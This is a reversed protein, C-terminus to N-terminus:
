KETCRLLSFKLLVHGYFMQYKSICFFNCGLERMKKKRESIGEFLCQQYTQNGKETKRKCLGLGPSQWVVTRTGMNVKELHVTSKIGDWWGSHNRGSGERNTRTQTVWACGRYPLAWREPWGVEQSGRTHPQHGSTKERLSADSGLSGSPQLTVINEFVLLMFKVTAFGLALFFYDNTVRDHAGLVDALAEFKGHLLCWISRPRQLHFVRPRGELYEGDASFCVMGVLVWMPHLPTLLLPFSVQVFFLSTM